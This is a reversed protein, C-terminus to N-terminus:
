GRTKGGAVNITVGHIYASRESALFAVANAVESLKGARGLPITSTKAYGARLQEVTIGRTYALATEYSLTRLGTAEMIGPALGVVRVGRRGLEKAWSRTLSNVAGKSASYVSQGESGELGSESSMNIIVGSKQAVMHRAAAQSVLFLGKVNVNMVKDWTAEDLEYKGAEDVLLRPLNIGANNVLVDIKGFTAIVQAIMADISAKNTVDTQVYLLKGNGVNFEPATPNIDCVTVYAGDNLLEEVTAYGIGSAGGTVIISKGELGLWSNSM